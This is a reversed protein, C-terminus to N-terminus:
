PSFISGRAERRRCALLTDDFSAGIDANRLHFIELSFASSGLQNAWCGPKTNEESTFNTNTQHRSFGRNRIYLRRQKKLPLLLHAHSIDRSGNKRHPLINTQLWSEWFRNYLKRLITNCVLQCDWMAEEGYIVVSPNIAIPLPKAELTFYNWAQGASRGENM